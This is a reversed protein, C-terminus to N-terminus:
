GSLWLGVALLAGYILQVRGTAGLVPILAGGVAGELVRTVPVRAFPIAALAVVAGIRGFAALPPVVLFPVALLVVYLARTRPAGLRVALTRKGAETDGPIDRLNNVVLLATALLGVPVSAAASLGTVDGTHVYTSGVTAVVGFFVFVFLEGLGAYGYPRPGGTYFWASAIAAVGVLLLEWGVAAALSLGAAAAVGFALFAARKVAAPAKIGSGVLRIPGVRAGAADTGRVGDSYDNAYNVGVQLALSVVLAAVARWAVIPAVGVAAATGVAVPVVAAPLTRPRAGALWDKM